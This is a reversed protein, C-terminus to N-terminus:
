KFVCGEFYCLFICLFKNYSLNKWDIFKIIKIYGLSFLFNFATLKQTKKCYLIFVCGTDHKLVFVPINMSTVNTKNTYTVIHTYKHTNHEQKLVYLIM